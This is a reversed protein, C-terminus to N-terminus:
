AWISACEEDCNSVADYNQIRRIMWLEIPDCLNPDCERAAAPAAKESSETSRCQLRNPDIRIEPLDVDRAGVDVKGIATAITTMKRIRDTLRLRIGKTSTKIDISGLEGSNSSRKPPKQSLPLNSKVPNQGPFGTKSKLVPLSTESEMVAPGKRSASLIESSSALRSKAAVGESPAQPRTLGKNWAADSKLTSELLDRLHAAQRETLEKESKGHWRQYAMTRPEKAKWTAPTHMQMDVRQGSPMRADVYIDRYKFIPSPSELREEVDLIDVKKRLAVAVEGDAMVVLGSKGDASLYARGGKKLTSRLTETDPVTVQKGFPHRGTVDAIIAQFNENDDTEVVHAEPREIRRGDFGRPEYEAPVSVDRGSIERRSPRHSGTALLGEADPVRNPGRISQADVAGTKIDPM